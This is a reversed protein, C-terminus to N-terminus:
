KDEISEKSGTKGHKNQIRSKFLTLKENNIKYSNKKLENETLM